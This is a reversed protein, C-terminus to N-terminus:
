KGVGKQREILIAGKRCKIRVPTSDGGLYYRVLELLWHTRFDAYALTCSGEKREIVDEIVATWESKRMTPGGETFDKLINWLKSLEIARCLEEYSNFSHKIIKRRIEEFQEKSLKAM